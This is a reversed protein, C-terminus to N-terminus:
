PVQAWEIQQSPSRPFAPSAYELVVSESWKGNRRNGKTVKTAYVWNGSIHQFITRQRWFGNDASFWVLMAHGDTGELQVPPFMRVPMVPTMSAVEVHSHWSDPLLGNPLNHAAHEIDYIEFVINHLPYKGALVLATRWTTPDVESPHVKFTFYCFSDGGTLTKISEHETASM